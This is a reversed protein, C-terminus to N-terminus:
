GSTQLTIIGIDIEKSLGQESNNTNANEDSSSETVTSGVLVISTEAVVPGEVFVTEIKSVTAMVTEVINMPCLYSRNFPYAVYQQYGIYPGGVLATRSIIFLVNLM